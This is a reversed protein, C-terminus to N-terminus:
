KSVIPCDEMNKKQRFYPAIVEKHYAGPPATSVFENPSIEKIYKKHYDDELKKRLAINCSTDYVIPENNNPNYGPMAFVPLAFIFIFSVLLLINRM